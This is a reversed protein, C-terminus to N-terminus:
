RIPPDEGICISIKPNGLVDQILLAIQREICDNPSETNEM